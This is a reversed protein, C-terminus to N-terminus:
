PVEANMVAAKAMAATENTTRLREDQDILTLGRPVHFAQRALASLQSPEDLDDKANCLTVLRLDRAPLSTLVRRAGVDGKLQLLKAFCHRPFIVPPGFDDGYIAVCACRPSETWAAYLSKLDAPTLRFQDVHLLLLGGVHAAIAVKAAQRISSSLGEEWNENLHRAVPLDSIVAGCESAHCGLVVAVSGTQSELAVRCQRRLLSEGGITVLQKPQRLRRSAGAALITVLVQSEAVNALPSISPLGAFCLSDDVMSKLNLNTSM